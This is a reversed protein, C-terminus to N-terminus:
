ALMFARSFYGLDAPEQSIFQIIYKNDPIFNEGAQEADDFTTYIGKLKNSHMLAYKGKHERVLSPLLKVFAKYNSDVFSEDLKGKNSHM